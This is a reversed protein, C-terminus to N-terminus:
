TVKWFASCATAQRALSVHVDIVQPRHRDIQRRTLDIGKVTIRAIGPTAAQTCLHTVEQRQEPPTLAFLGAEM